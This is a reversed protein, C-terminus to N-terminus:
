AAKATVFKERYEPVIEHPTGDAIIRGHDVWIVRSCFEEILQLDHGVMAVINARDIFSMMRDRAKQQFALDGTAFVEDILLIDPHSSTAVSFALRMLMGSSYCRLPVDLFENLESFEAIEKIKEKLSRPTEGQLYARYEINEWGNAEWEFGYTIDFLSCISGEVKRVGSNIPYVGAITRLLTSKGAGNHGIIGLREGNRITLNVEKLANVTKMAQYSSRFLGRVIFEKLTLGANERIPFVLNVNEFHVYSSM